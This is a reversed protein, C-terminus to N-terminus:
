LMATLAPIARQLGAWNREVILLERRTLTPDLQDFRNCVIQAIQEMGLEYNKWVAVLIESLDITSGLALEASNMEIATLSALDCEKIVSKAEDSDNIPLYICGHYIEIHQNYSHFYPHIWIYDKPNSPYEIPSENSRELLSDHSGKQNNCRKCTLVLNLPEFRFQPYGNTSRRHNPNNSKANNLHISAAKPLIHDLEVHGPEDKIPRRCYACRSAQAPFLTERLLKKTGSHTDESWDIGSDACARLADSISSSIINPDLSDWVIM